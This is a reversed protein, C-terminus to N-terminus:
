LSQSLLWGLYQPDPYVTDWVDHGFGSLETYKMKGGIAKMQAAMSRDWTLPVNTDNSGHIAWLPKDKLTLCTQNVDRAYNAGALPMAAAFLDPRFAILEWTAIGGLSNGTVTIRKVDHNYANMVSQLCALAADRGATNNNSVGGFNITNGSPDATEDLLPAVVIAAHNSRFTPGNFWPDIEQMLGNINKPEGMDLQHLYLVIPYPVSADYNNPLLVKYAMTGTQGDLWKGPTVSGTQTPANTAVPIDTSSLGTQVWGSGNWSYGLGSASDFAVANGSVITLHSTGSGGPVLGGNRTVAGSASISWVVGAGDIAGKNDGPFVTTVGNTPATTPTPTTSPLNAAKSILAAIKKGYDTLSGNSVLKDGPQNPDSNANWHWAIFGYGSTGVVDDVLDGDADIADGTTSNGFEGIIVPVLGDASHISQVAAIGQATPTSGLFAALVTARDNSFKPVWGYFHPGWVINHMNKYAGQPMPGKYDYGTASIGVLGPNGGSPLELVNIVDPSVSRIGNYIAVQQETIGALNTGDGPENFGNIWVYTNDKYHQAVRTFFDVENSLQSGTYPPQSIGTHDDFLVVIKKSTMYTVFADFTGVDAYARCNLRIINLGPFLKILLDKNMVESMQNDNVNIGRALFPKGDPGILNGDKVVFKGTASPPATTVPPTTTPPQTTVPPATTPLPTEVATVLIGFGALANILADLEKSV